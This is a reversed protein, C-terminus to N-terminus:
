VGALIWPWAAGHKEHAAKWRTCGTCANCPEDSSAICPWWGDATVQGDEALEVIQEDTLDIVPLDFDITALETNVNAGLSFLQVTEAALTMVTIDSGCALPWTITRCNFERAAATARTLQDILPLSDFRAANNANLYAPNSTEDIILEQVGRWNAAQEIATQQAPAGQHHAAPHWLVVNRDRSQLHLAVLSPLDGLSVLLTAHNSM